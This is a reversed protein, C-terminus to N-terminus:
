DSEIYRLNGQNKYYIRRNTQTANDLIKVDSLINGKGGGREDLETAAPASNVIEIVGLNDVIFRLIDQLKATYAALQATAAPDLAFQPPTLDLDIQKM